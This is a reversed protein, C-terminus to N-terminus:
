KAFAQTVQVAAPGAVIIFICPLIFLIMPITLFVPIRAARAEFRTLMTTRMESALIRLAQTLPTGYQMSQALVAGFRNMSDLGTRKGMNLLADRRSSLMKMENATIRLESAIAKAGERAEHAVREFGAELAMGAEACIILLDLAAPLGTEVSALYRKRMSRVVYDPLMLGVIGAAGMGILTPIPLGTARTAAGGLLPFIIVLIFKAGVFMPLALSNYNGTSAVTKRLDEIAKNSLLGTSLIFQGVASFFGFIRSPKQAVTSNVQHTPMRFSRLRIDVQDKKKAFPALFLAALVSISSLAIGVIWLYHGNM